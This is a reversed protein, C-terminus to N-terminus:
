RRARPVAQAARELERIGRAVAAQEEATLPLPFEADATAPAAPTPASAAPAEAVVGAAKAASEAAATEQADSAPAEIIAEAEGPVALPALTPAVASAQVRAPPNKTETVSSRHPGSLMSLTAAIGAATAIVLVISAALMRYNSWLGEAAEQGSPEADESEEFDPRVARLPAQRAGNPSEAAVEIAPLIGPAMSESDPTEEAPGFYLIAGDDAGLAPPVQLLLAANVDEARIQPAGESVASFYALGAISRLRRPSGKSEAVILEFSEATFLDPLGARRARTLLFERADARPLPTLEIMAPRLGSLVARGACSPLGLLVITTAVNKGADPSLESLESDPASNVEDVLLVDCHESLAVHMLDGREIHRVSLGMDSCTRRTMEALLTKGTSAGGTVLVIPTELVVHRITEHFAAQLPSGLHPDASSCAFPDVNPPQQLPGAACNM